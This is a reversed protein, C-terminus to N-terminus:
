LSENEKMMLTYKQTEKYLRYISAILTPVVIPWTRPIDVLLYIMFISCIVRFHIISKYISLNNALENKIIEEKLENIKYERIEQEQNIQYEVENFKVDIEIHRRYIEEFKEDYHNTTEKLKEEITTTRDILQVSM